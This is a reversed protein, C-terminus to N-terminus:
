LVTNENWLQPADIGCQPIYNHFKCFIFFVACVGETSQVVKETKTKLSCIGETSKPFLRRLKAAHNITTLQHNDAPTIYARQEM